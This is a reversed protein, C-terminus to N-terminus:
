KQCSFFHLEHILLSFVIHAPKRSLALDHSFCVKRSSIAFKGGFCPGPSVVAVARLGVLGADLGAKMEPGPM